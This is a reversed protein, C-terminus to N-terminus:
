DEKNIYIDKVGVETFLKYIGELTYTDEHEKIMELIPPYFQNLNEETLVDEINEINHSELWEKIKDPTCNYIHKNQDGISFDFHIM